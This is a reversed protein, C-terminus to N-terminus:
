QEYPEYKRDSVQEMVNIHNVQDKIEQWGNDSMFPMAIIHKYLM